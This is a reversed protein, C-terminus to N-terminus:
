KNKEKIHKLIKNYLKQEAKILSSRNILDAFMLYTLSERLTEFYKAKVTDFKWGGNKLQKNISPSMGGFSIKLYNEM